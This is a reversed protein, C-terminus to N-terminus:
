TLYLFECQNSDTSSVGAVEDKQSMNKDVLLVANDYGTKRIPDLAHDSPDLLWGHVARINLAALMDLVESKAFM